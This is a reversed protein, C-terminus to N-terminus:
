GLLSLAVQPIQNAQALMASSSQSLIQQKTM